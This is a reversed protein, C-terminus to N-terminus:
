WLMGEWVESNSYLFKMEQKEPYAILFIPFRQSFTLSLCLSLSGKTMRPVNLGCKMPTPTSGVFCSSSFKSGVFDNLYMKKFLNFYYRLTKNIKYINTSKIKNAKSRFTSLNSIFLDQFLSLALQYFIFPGSFSKVCHCLFPSAVNLELQVSFFYIKNFTFPLTSASNEFILQFKLISSFLNM